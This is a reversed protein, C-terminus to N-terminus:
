AAEQRQHTGRHDAAIDELAPARGGHAPSTRPWGWGSAARSATSSSPTSRWTPGSTPLGSRARWPMPARRPGATPSSCSCRGADPDRIRELGLTKAATTLGEALPTRGGHPLEALCAAAAEVSSTPPLALQAGAGRFTVLGVRDRRQYADMLLSLAATKVEAMRRARPWPAPPTSSSSSSIPSRARPSRRACIAGASRSGARGPRDPPARGRERAATTITATLHVRGTREPQRRRHSGLEHDGSQAKGAAGSGTGRVSLRRIRYPRPGPWARCPHRCTPRRHTGGSETDSPDPAPTPGRIARTTSARRPTRRGLRRPDTADAEEDAGEQSEPDESGQPDQPDQPGQPNEPPPEDDGLLRDLLDEDLGPADFPARRRRHPLALKAATRIDERTVEARGEWAAHAVAARATVIDARM